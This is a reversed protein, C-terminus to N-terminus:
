GFAFTIFWHIMRDVRAHVKRILIRSEPSEIQFQISIQLEISWTFCFRISQARFYSAISRTFWFRRVKCIFIQSEPSEESHILVHSGASETFICIQSESWAFLKLISPSPWFEEDLQSTTSLNLSRHGRWKRARWILLQIWSILVWAASVCSAFSCNRRSWARCMQVVFVSILMRWLWHQWDEVSIIKMIKEIEIEMRWVIQTHKQTCLKIMRRRGRTPYNFLLRHFRCKSVTHHTCLPLTPMSISCPPFIYTSDIFLYRVCVIVENGLCDRPDKGDVGPLLLNESQPLSTIM